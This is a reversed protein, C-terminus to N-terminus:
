PIMELAKQQVLAALESIESSKDLFYDAGSKLARECVFDTVENTYVAIQMTPALVKFLRMRSTANGDPLSLDLIMLHPAERRVLVEAEALTGVMGIVDLNIVPRLWDGIRSRILASDEVVLLKLMPHIMRM